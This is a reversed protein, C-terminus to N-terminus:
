KNKMAVLAVWGKEEYREVVKFGNEDLSALVDGERTDIIGSMIYVADDTMFQGVDKTFITIIEAIINAVVM